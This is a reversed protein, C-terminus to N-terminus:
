MTNHFAYMEIFDDFSVLHVEQSLNSIYEQGIFYSDLLLVRIGQEEIIQKLQGLEDMPRKYDTHLIQSKYGKEELMANAFEDATIVIFAQEMHALEEAISMCRMIHGLAITGNADM